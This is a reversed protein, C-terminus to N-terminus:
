RGHSLVGDHPGDARSLLRTFVNFSGSGVGAVLAVALGVASMGLGATAAGREAGGEAGGGFLAPPRTILVIGCLTCAGCGLERASLREADGLALRSIVLTALTDTGKFITFADAFTLLVFSVNLLVGLFAGNLGRATALASSRRRGTRLLLVRRAAAPGERLRVLLGNFLYVVVCRLLFTTAITGGRRYIGAAAANAGAFAFAGVTVLLPGRAVGIAM